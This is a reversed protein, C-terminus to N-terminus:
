LSESFQESYGLVLSIPIWLAGMLNRVKPKEWQDAAGGLKRNMIKEARARCEFYHVPEAGPVRSLKLIVHSFGFTQMKKCIYSNQANDVPRTRPWFLNVFIDM